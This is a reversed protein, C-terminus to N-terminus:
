PPFYSLGNHSRGNAVSLAIHQCLSFARREGNEEVESQRFHEELHRTLNEMMSDGPQHTFVSKRWGCPCQIALARPPFFAVRAEECHWLLHDAVGYLNEVGMDCFLCPEMM